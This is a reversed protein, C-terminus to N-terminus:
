PRQQLASESVSVTATPPRARDPLRCPAQRRASTPRASSQTRTTRLCPASRFDLCDPLSAPNRACRISQCSGVTTQPPLLLALATKPTLSSLSPHGAFSGLVPASLTQGAPALAAILSGVLQGSPRSSVKLAGQGSSQSRSARRQWQWACHPKSHWGCSVLGLRSRLVGAPRRVLSLSHRVASCQMVRCPWATEQVAFRASLERADCESM